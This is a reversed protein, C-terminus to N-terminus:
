KTLSGGVVWGYDGWNASHELLSISFSGSAASPDIPVSLSFPKNLKEGKPAIYGFYKHEKGVTVEVVLEYYDGSGPGSSENDSVAAGSVTLTNGALKGTYARGAIKGRDGGTPPDLQAGTITYSLRGWFGPLEL